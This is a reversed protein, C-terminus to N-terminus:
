FLFSILCFHSTMQWFNFENPFCHLCDTLRGTEDRSGLEVLAEAKLTPQEQLVLLATRHRVSRELQKVNSMRRGFDIVIRAVLPLFVTDPARVAFVGRLFLLFSDLTYM